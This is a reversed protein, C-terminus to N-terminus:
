VSLRFAYHSWRENSSANFFVFRVSFRVFSIVIKRQNLSVSESTAHGNGNQLVMPEQIKHHLLDVPKFVLGFLNEAEPKNFSFM